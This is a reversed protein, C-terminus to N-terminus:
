ALCDGRDRQYRLSLSRLSGQSPRRGFRGTRGGAVTRAGVRSNPPLELWTRLAQQSLTHGCGADRLMAEGDPEAMFPWRDLKGM